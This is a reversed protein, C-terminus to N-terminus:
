GNFRNTNFTFDDAAPTHHPHDAFVGLMFLPLPLPNLGPQSLIVHPVCQLHLCEEPYFLTSRRLNRLDAGNDFLFIFHFPIHAAGNIQVHLAQHIDPTVPTQAVTAAQRNPTLAGM